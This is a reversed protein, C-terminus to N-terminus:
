AIWRFQNHSVQELLQPTLTMRARREWLGGATHIYVHKKICVEKRQCRSFETSGGERQIAERRKPHLPFQVEPNKWNLLNLMCTSKLAWNWCSAKHKQFSRINPCTERIFFISRNCQSGQQQYMFICRRRHLIEM